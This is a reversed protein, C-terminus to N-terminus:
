IPLFEYDVINISIVMPLDNYDKGKKLSKAYERSWYFLSRKDINYQNRIQVELNVKTNDKLVARVDLICTKDGINGAIFSKNEIITVHMIQENGRRGLVANLFGLLQKEDGKEGMIKLFLFDNLPNLRRTHNTNLEQM